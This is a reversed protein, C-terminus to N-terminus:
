TPSISNIFCSGHVDNGDGFAHTAFVVKQGDPSFEPDTYFEVLEGISGDNFYSDPMM